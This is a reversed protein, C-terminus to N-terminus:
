SSRGIQNYWQISFQNDLLVMEERGTEYQIEKSSHSSVKQPISIPTFSFNSLTLHPNEDCGGTM